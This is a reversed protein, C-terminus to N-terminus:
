DPEDQRHRVVVRIPGGHKRSGKVQVAYCWYTGTISDFSVPGESGTDPTPSLGTDEELTATGRVPEVSSNLFTDEWDCGGVSYTVGDTWEGQITTAIWGGESRPVNLAHAAMMATGSFTGLTGMNFAFLAQSITAIDPGNTKVWARVVFSVRPIQPLWSKVSDGSSTVDVLGWSKSIVWDWAQINIGPTATITNSSAFAGDSDVNAVSGTAVIEQKPIGDLVQRYNMGSSTINFLPTTQEVQISHWKVETIPSTFKLHQSLVFTSKAM